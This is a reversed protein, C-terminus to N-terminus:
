LQPGNHVARFIQDRLQYMEKTDLAPNAGIAQNIQQLALGIAQRQPDTLARQRVVAVLARTAEAYNNTKLSSNVTAISRQVELGASQFSEQLPQSADVRRERKCSVLSLALAPVILWSLRILPKM